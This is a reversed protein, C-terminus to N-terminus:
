EWPPWQPSPSESSTFTCYKIINDKDMYDALKNM